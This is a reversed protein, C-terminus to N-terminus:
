AQGSTLKTLYESLEDLAAVEGEHYAMAPHSVVSARREDAHRRTFRSIITCLAAYGDENRLLWSRLVVDIPDEPKPKAAEAAQIAATKAEEIAKAKAKAGPMFRSSLAKWSSLRKAELAAAVDVKGNDM